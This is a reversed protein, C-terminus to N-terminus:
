VEHYKRPVKGDAAPTVSYGAGTRAVAASSASNPPGRVSSSGYSLPSAAGPSVGAAAAMSHTASILSLVAGLHMSSRRLNNLKVSKLVTPTAAPASSGLVPRSDRDIPVPMVPGVAPLNTAAAGTIIYLCCM